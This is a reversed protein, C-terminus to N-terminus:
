SEMCKIGDLENQFKNEFEREFDKIKLSMDEKLKMLKDHAKSDMSITEERTSEELELGQPTEEISDRVLNRRISKRVYEKARDTYGTLQVLAIIVSILAILFHIFFIGAMNTTTLRHLDDDVFVTRGVQDSCTDVTMKRYQDWINGLSGDTKMENVHIDIINLLLSTCLEKSDKVAFSAMSKYVARGVWELNCNPNYVTMKKYENFSESATLVIDCHGENLAQFGELETKRMVYNATPYDRQLRTFKSIRDAVCVPLRQNVVDQFSTITTIASDNVLFAALNATYASSVVLFLFCLSFTFVRNSTYDPRYYLHGTGTLFSFFISEGMKTEMEKNGKRHSLFDLLYYILGSGISTLFLLFWVGDTFPKLISGAEFTKKPQQKTIMIYDANYWGDAYVIGHNLRKQTKFWWDVIIDYRDSANYLIDGWTQNSPNDIVQYSNRWSFGARRAVEDFVQNAIYNNPDRNEDVTYPLLAASINMGKLANRREVKGADVNAYTQCFNTPSSDPHKNIIINDISTTLSATSAILLILPSRDRKLM